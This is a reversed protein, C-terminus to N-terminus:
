MLEQLAGIIAKKENDPLRVFNQVISMVADNIEPETDLIVSDQVKIM